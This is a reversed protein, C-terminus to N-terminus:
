DQRTFRTEDVKRRLDAEADPAPIRAPTTEPGSAAAPEPLTETGGPRLAFILGLSAVGFAGVAAEAWYVGWTGGVFVASADAAAHWLIAAVLWLLNQRRFAQLVMVTASLHFCLTFAREVAGLLTAYWPASWYATIQERLVVAQHATLPLTSLDTNRLTVFQVFAAGALAGFFIAEIGGHGAGFMLAERWTRASKIWYRYVLYRAIEECLGATLGLVVANFPLRWAVPPAPLIRNTFLATLGSNLPIHVVQSAAFTAAGVVYLSWRLGLRRALFVGLLIPMAIMLAFNLFHTAYLV